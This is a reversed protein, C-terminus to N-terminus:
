KTRQLGELVNRISNYLCVLRRPWSLVMVRNAAERRNAEKSVEPKSGHCEVTAKGADDRAQKSLKSGPKSMLNVTQKRETKGENSAQKRPRGHAVSAVLLRGSLRRWIFHEPDTYRQCYSEGLFAM